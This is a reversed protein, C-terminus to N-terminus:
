SDLNPLMRDDHQRLVYNLVTTRVQGQYDNVSFELVFLDPDIDELGLLNIRKAMACMDAGHSGMNWVKHQQQQQQQLPYLANLWGELQNSYRLTTPTVGHGLSISGGCVVVNTPHQQRQLKRTFQTLRYRNGPYAQSRLLDDATLGPTRLM